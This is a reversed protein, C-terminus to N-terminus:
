RLDKLRSSFLNKFLNQEKKSWPAQNFLDFNRTAKLLLNNLMNEIAETRLGFRKGFEIFTKRKLNDKKGDLPLAMQTDGYIITPILDYAPTLSVVKTEPSVTVSINKGHLDGNGILYSFSIMQMLNLIGVQPATLVKRLEKTIDNISTNYKDFPYIDLLQCADEQHVRIIKSDSSIRDFREVMLAKNHDRDEIIKAKSSILGCKKAYLLCIFEDEILHPKDKPNLKIIYSKKRNTGRLPLSIMSASIKEQIGTLAEPVSLTELFYDYFNVITKNKLIIKSDDQTKFETHIDGIFDTGALRFINFLDDKSIKNRELLLKLRLGEPLLNAFFPHLNHGEIVYEIQSVPMKFCLNESAEIAKAYKFVAGKSTRALTGILINNKYISIEQQRTMSQYKGIKRGVQM